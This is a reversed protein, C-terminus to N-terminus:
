EVRIRDIEKKATNIHEFIVANEPNRKQLLIMENLFDQWADLGDFPTPPDIIIM